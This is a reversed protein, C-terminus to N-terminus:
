HSIKCGIRVQNAAQAGSRTSWDMRRKYERPRDERSEERGFDRKLKIPKRKEEKKEEKKDVKDEKDKAKDKKKDMVDDMKASAKRDSKKDGYDDYDREKGRNRERAPPPSVHRQRKSMKEGTDDKITTKKDSASSESVRPGLRDKVSYPKATTGTEDSKLKRGLRDKVNSSSTPRSITVQM